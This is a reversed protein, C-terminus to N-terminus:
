GVHTPVPTGLTFVFTAGQGRGASEVRIRGGHLEVIRKVLALGIGSGRRRDGTEFLNFIGEAKTPDLGRGNDRVYIELGSGSRQVGIEVRPRPQDNMFKCANQLLNQFVQRLRLRDGRVTPLRGVIRIDVERGSETRAAVLETAEAAIRGLDVEDSPDIEKGLRSLELLVDLLDQMRGTARDIADLCSRADDESGNQVFEVALDRYGMIATLPSKLDHAVTYAYRELEKNKRGLEDNLSRATRLTLQLAEQTRKLGTVDSFSALVAWPKSEGPRVLPTASVSMWTLKGGGKDVGIVVDTSARGTRLAIATPHEDRPLLTGDQRIAHWSSRVPERGTFQARTLGLIREAAVNCSLFRGEADRLVIGEALSALVEQSIMTESAADVEVADLRCVFATGDADGIWREV